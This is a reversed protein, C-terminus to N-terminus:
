GEILGQSNQILVPDISVSQNNKIMKIVDENINSLTIFGLKNKYAIDVFTKFGKIYDEDEPKKPLINEIDLYLLQLEENSIWNIIQNVGCNYFMLEQDIIKHCIEEAISNSKFDLASSFIRRGLIFHPNYFACHEFCKIQIIISLIDIENILQRQYNEEHKNVRLEVQYNTENEKRTYINKDYMNPHKRFDIDFQNVCDVVQLLEKKNPFRRFSKFTQNNTAQELYEINSLQPVIKTKFKDFDFLHLTNWDGM